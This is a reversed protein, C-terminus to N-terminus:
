TTKLLEYVKFVTDNAWGKYLEFVCTQIRSYNFTKRPLATISKIGFTKMARLRVDSDTITFWPLLAIVKDSMKMCEALIYYGLRMGNLDLNEPVSFGHRSSFPPNMIVCDFQDHPLQFFNKPATVKYGSLFKLINGEGPTPELVTITGPPILSCMFEAVHLPTQFDIKNM